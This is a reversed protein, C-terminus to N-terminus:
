ENVPCGNCTDCYLQVRCHGQPKEEKLCEDADRCADCLRSLTCGKAYINKLAM